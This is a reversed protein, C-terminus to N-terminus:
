CTPEPLDLPTAGAPPGHWTLLTAPTVIPHERMRRPLLRALASLVMRDPWSLRRRGRVQRRLAAECEQVEFM